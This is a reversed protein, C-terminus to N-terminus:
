GESECIQHLHKAGYRGDFQNAHEGAHSATPLKDTFDFRREVLVPQGGKDHSERCTVFVQEDFALFKRNCAQLVHASSAPLGDCDGNGALARCASDFGLRPTQHLGALVTRKLFLKWDNRSLEAIV